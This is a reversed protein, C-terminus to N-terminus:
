LNLLETWDSVYRNVSFQQSRMISKRRYEDELEGHELLYMIAESFIREEKTQVKERIDFSPSLIGYECVAFDDLTDYKCDGSLIERPGFKCDTAIVPTGCALAELVVNSFSERRSSNLLARAKSIYAFPNDKDGLFYVSESMGNNIVYSKLENILDGDGIIYLKLAEYKELALRFSNILNRFCKVDVIRGVAVFTNRDITDDVKQSSLANIGEFDCANYIVHMKHDYRKAKEAYAMKQGKSIFVTKDSISFTLRDILTLGNELIMSGRISTVVKENKKSLCNIINASEGFSIAVDVHKCKKIKRVKCSRLLINHIKNFKNAKAPININVYDVNNPINYHGYKADDAFVLFVVKHIVSLSEALLLAMRQQGGRDLNAVM